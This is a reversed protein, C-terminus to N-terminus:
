AVRERATTPTSSRAIRASLIEIALAAQQWVVCNGLLRLAHRRGVRGSSRADSGRVAPQPGDWGQIQDPGPPFRHTALQQARDRRHADDGRPTREGDLLSSSGLRERGPRDPNALPGPGSGDVDPQGARVDREDQWFRGRVADALAESGHEAPETRRAGPSERGGRGELRSGDAHAVAGGRRRPEEPGIRLAEGRYGGFASGADRGGAEGHADALEEGDDALEAQCTGRAGDGRRCLDRVRERDTYALLFLRERRHPAGVDSALVVEWEADYGLSALDGLVTALATEDPPQDAGAGMPRGCFGCVTGFLFPAQRRQCTCVCYARGAASTIAAVNEFLVISPQLDSVIRAFESWLGSKEGSIGVRRGANSIDQCPSGGCIIDVTPAEHDIQRVDEYCHVGPWHRALVARAYPDSEAQWIATHDFAELALDLGGVGSFLSGYTM